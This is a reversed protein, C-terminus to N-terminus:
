SHLTLLNNRVSRPSRCTGPRSAEIPDIGTTIMFGHISCTPGSRPTPTPSAARGNVCHPGSSANPRAMPKRGILAHPQAEPGLMYLSRCLGELPLSLRQRDAGPACTRGLVPLVHCREDPVARCQAPGPRPLSRHLRNPQPRRRFRVPVGLRRRRIHRPSPSQM